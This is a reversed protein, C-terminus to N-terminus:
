VLGHNADKRDDIADKLEQPPLEKAQQIADDSAEVAKDSRAVFRDYAQNIHSSDGEEKLLLIKKKKKVIFSTLKGTGSAKRQEESWTNTARVM